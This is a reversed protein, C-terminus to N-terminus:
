LPFFFALKYLCSLWALMGLGYPVAVDVCSKSYLGRGSAALWIAIRHLASAHLACGGTVAQGQSQQRPNENSIYVHQVHVTMPARWPLPPTAGAADKSHAWTRVRVRVGDQRVIRFKSEGFQALSAPHLVRFWVHRGDIHRRAEIAAARQALDRVFSEIERQAAGRQSRTDPDFHYRLCAYTTVVGLCLWVKWAALNGLEALGLLSASPKFSLNLFVIALIAATWHLLLALM